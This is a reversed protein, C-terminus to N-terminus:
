GPKNLEWRARTNIDLRKLRRLEEILAPFPTMKQIEVYNIRERLWVGKLSRLRGLQVVVSTYSKHSSSHSAKKLDLCAADYTQGQAKYDTISFAPTVPVQLRAFRFKSGKIFGSSKMPFIPVENAQLGEFPNLLDKPMSVVISSPPRDVLIWRSGWPYCRSSTDIHVQSASGIMGNVVGTPTSINHLVMIPMGQTYMFLGPGKLSSDDGQTLIKAHRLVLENRIKSSREAMTMLGTHTAAFVYIKQNRSEAFKQIFSQNDRDRDANRQVISIVPPTEGRSTRAQLTQLNLQDIDSRTLRAERSRALMEQYAVDGAQRMSETLLIVHNFEKWVRQGNVSKASPRRQRGLHDYGQLPAWLCQDLVPEFQHFDGFLAVVPIGGFFTTTESSIESLLANQLYMNIDDMLECGVMSVEDGILALLHAARSRLRLKANQSVSKAEKCMGLFSHLTGIFM